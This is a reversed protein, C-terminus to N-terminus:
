LCPLHDVLSSHFIFKLIDVRLFIQSVNLTIIMFVICCYTVKLTVRLNNTKGEIGQAILRCRATMNLM